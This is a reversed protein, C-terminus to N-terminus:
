RCECTGLLFYPPSAAVQRFRLLPSKVDTVKSFDLIGSCPPHSAMYRAARAHLELLIAGTMRGELTGRPINDKADFEVSSGCLVENLSIAPASNTSQHGVHSSYCPSLALSARAHQFPQELYDNYPFFGTPGRWMPYLDRAQMWKGCVPDIDVYTIPCLARRMKGIRQM